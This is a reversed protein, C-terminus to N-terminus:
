PNLKGWAVNLFDRAPIWNESWQTLSYKYHSRGLLEAKSMLALASLGGDVGVYGDCKKEIRELLRILKPYREYSVKGSKYEQLEKKARGIANDLVAKCYALDRSRSSRLLENLLVSVDDWSLGKTNPIKAKNLALSVFEIKNYATYRKTRGIAEKQLNIQEELKEESPDTFFKAELVLGLHGWRLFLDPVAIRRYSHFIKRVEKSYVSPDRLPDLESVVEFDTSDKLKAAEEKFLKGFLLKLGAFDNAMLIHSFITAVYFREARAVETFKYKKEM